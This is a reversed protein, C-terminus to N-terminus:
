FTGKRLMPENQTLRLPLLGSAVPAAALSARRSAWRSRRVTRPCKSLGRLVACYGCCDHAPLCCFPAPFNRSIPPRSATIQRGTQGTQGVPLRARRDPRRNKTRRGKRVLPSGFPWASVQNAVLVRRGQAQVSARGGAAGACGTCSPEVPRVRRPRPLRPCNPPAPCVAAPGAPDAPSPRSPRAPSAGCPRGAPTASAVFFLSRRLRM